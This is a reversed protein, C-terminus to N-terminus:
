IGFLVMDEAAGKIIDKSNVKGSMLLGKARQLLKEDAPPCQMAKEILSAYNVQLSVDAKNNTHAGASNPQRTSPEPEIPSQNNVIKDIM